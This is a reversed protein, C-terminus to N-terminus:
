RVVYVRQGNALTLIVGDKSNAFEAGAVTQGNFTAGPPVTITAM